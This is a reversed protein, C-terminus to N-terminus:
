RHQGGRLANLLKGIQRLLGPFPLLATFVAKLLAAAPRPMRSLSILPYPIRQKWPSEQWFRFFDQELANRPGTLINPKMAAFHVIAPAAYAARAEQSENELQESFLPIVNYELPLPTIQGRLVANLVDQDPWILERTHHRTAAILRQPIQMSRMAPLQMVLLSSYFYPTGDDALGFRRPFSRLHQGFEEAYHGLVVWPVAAIATEGLETRYLEGLDRRVVTDCDLYIVREITDPLLQPLLFRHYIPTPFRGGCPLDRLKDAVDYWTINTFGGLQLVKRDVGSDLIHFHYKTDANASQIISRLCLGLPVTFAQNASLAIHITEPM